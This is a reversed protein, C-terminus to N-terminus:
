LKIETYTRLLYLFSDNPWKIIKNIMSKKVDGVLLLQFFTMFGPIYYKNLDNLILFPELSWMSQKIPLATLVKKM